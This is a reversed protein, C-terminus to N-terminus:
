IAYGYLRVNMTLTNTGSATAQIYATGSGNTKAIGWSSTWKGNALGSCRTTFGNASETTPGITVLCDNAASGTDNISVVLILGM